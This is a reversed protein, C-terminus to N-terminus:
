EGTDPHQRRVALALTQQLDKGLQVAVAVVLYHDESLVGVRHVEQTVLQARTAAPAQHTKPGRCLSETRPRCIRTM